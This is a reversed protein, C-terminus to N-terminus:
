TGETGILTVKGVAKDRGVPIDNGAPTVVIRGALTGTNLLIDKGTMTGTETGHMPGKQGGAPPLEAVGVAGAAKVVVARAVGVELIEVRVAEADADALPLPLMPTLPRGMGETVGGLAVMGETTTEVGVRGATETVGGDGARGVMVGVRAVLERGNPQALRRQTLRENFKNGGRVVAGAPTTTGVVRIVTVVALTEDAAPTTGARVM